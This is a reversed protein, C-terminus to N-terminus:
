ELAVRVSGADAHRRVNNLAELFIRIFADRIRPPVRIAAPVSLVTVVIGTREEFTSACRRLAAALWPEDAGPPRLGGGFLILRV